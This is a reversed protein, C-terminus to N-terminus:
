PMNNSWSDKWYGKEKWRATVNARAPEYAEIKLQKLNRQLRM